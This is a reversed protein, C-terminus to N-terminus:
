IGALKRIRAINEKIDDPYMGGPVPDDEGPLHQLSGQPDTWKSSYGEADPHAQKAEEESQYNNIFRKITQGALVSSEPAQFFGVVDVTGDPNARLKKYLFETEEKINDEDDPLVNVPRDKFSAPDQKYRKYADITAQKEQKEKETGHWFEKGAQKVNDWFGEDLDDDSYLSKFKDLAEKNSKDYPSVDHLPDPTVREYKDNGLDTLVTYQRKVNEIMGDADYEEEDQVTLVKDGAKAIIDGYNHVHGLSGDDYMDDYDDADKTSETKIDMVEKEAENPDEGAAVLASVSDQAADEGIVRYVGKALNDLFIDVIQELYQEKNMKHQAAIADMKDNVDKIVEEVTKKYKESWVSTADTVIGETSVNVLKGYIQVDENAYNM